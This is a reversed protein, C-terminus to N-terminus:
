PPPFALGASGTCLLGLADARAKLRASEEGSHEACYVEIGDLGLCALTALMEERGALAPGPRALVASGGNRHIIEAAERVDPAPAVVHCPKGPAFYDRCLRQVARQMDAEARYPALTASRRHRGSKLLIAALMEAPMVEPWNSGRSAWWVARYPVELGLAALRRLREGSAARAQKRTERELRDFDPSRHDIGYGLIQLPVNQFVCDIEVAPFCTKNYRMALAVAEDVGRVTNRDAIAFMHIRRQVCQAVLEAPSYVGDYSYHSRLHLDIGGTM